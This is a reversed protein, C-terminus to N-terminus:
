DYSAGGHVGAVGLETGLGRELGACAEVPGACGIGAARREGSEGRGDEANGEGTERQEPDGLGIVGGAGHGVGVVGKGFAEGNEWDKTQGEEQDAEANDERREPGEEFTAVGNVGDGVLADHDDGAAAITGYLGVRGGVDGGDLMAFAGVAGAVDDDDGVGDGTGVIHYGLHLDGETAYEDKWEGDRGLDTGEISGRQTRQTLRKEAGAWKVM